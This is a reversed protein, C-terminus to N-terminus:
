FLAYFVVGCDQLPTTKKNLMLADYHDISEDVCFKWDKAGCSEEIICIIKETAGGIPCGTILLIRPRGGPTARESSDNARKV